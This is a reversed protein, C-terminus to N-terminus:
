YKRVLAMCGRETCLGLQLCNSLHDVCSIVKEMQGCSRGRQKPKGGGEAAEM